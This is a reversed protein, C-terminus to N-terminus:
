RNYWYRLYDTMNRGDHWRSHQLRDGWLIKIHGNSKICSTAAPVKKIIHKKQIDILVTLPERPTVKDWALWDCSLDCSDSTKILPITSSSVVLFSSRSSHLVTKGTTRQQSKLLFPIWKINTLPSWRDYIYKSHWICERTYVWCCGKRIIQINFRIRLEKIYLARHLITDSWTNALTKCESAVGNSPNKGVWVDLLALLGILLLPPRYWRTHPHLEEEM